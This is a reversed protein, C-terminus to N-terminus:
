VVTTKEKKIHILRAIKHIVQSFVWLFFHKNKVVGRIKGM